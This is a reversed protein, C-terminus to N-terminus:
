HSYSLLSAKASEIKRKLLSTMEAEMYNELPYGNVWGQFDLDVM